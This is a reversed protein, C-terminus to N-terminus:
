KWKCEIQMSRDTEDNTLKCIKSTIEVLGHGSRAPLKIIFRKKMLVRFFYWDVCTKTEPM